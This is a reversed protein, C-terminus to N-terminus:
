EEERAPMQMTQESPIDVILESLSDRLIVLVSQRSALTTGAFFISAVRSHHFRKAASAPLNRFESSDESSRRRSCCEIDCDGERSPWGISSIV